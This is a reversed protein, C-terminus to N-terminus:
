TLAGCIVADIAGPDGLADHIGHSSAVAEFEQGPVYTVTGTDQFILGAGPQNVLYVAGVETLVRSNRDGPVLYDYLRNWHGRVSVSPGDGFPSLSFRDDPYDLHVATKTARGDVTHWRTMRERGSGSIYVDQDDCQLGIAENEYVPYFAGQCIVGQGADWCSWPAFDPNLAPTVTSPDVERPSKAVAPLSTSLAAAAALVLAPLLALKRM